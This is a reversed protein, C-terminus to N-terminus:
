YAREEDLGYTTLGYAVLVNLAVAMTAPLPYAFIWFFNFTAAALAVGIGVWVAWRTRAFVAFGAVVLVAGVVLWIWGWADLNNDYFLADFRTDQATLAWLGDFFDLAGSLIMMLGAFTVWRDARRAAPGGELRTSMM